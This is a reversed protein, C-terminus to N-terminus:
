ENDSVDDDKIFNEENDGKIFVNNSTFSIEPLEKRMSFIHENEIVKKSSVPFGFGLGRHERRIIADAWEYVTDTSGSSLDEVIFKGGSDSTTVNSFDFNVATIDASPLQKNM